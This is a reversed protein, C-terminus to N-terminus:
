RVAEGPVPAGGTVDQRAVEHKGPASAKGHEILSKLRVLDADMSSKADAGFLRAAFHGLAGGPPNYCFRLDVRTRDGQPLFRLIGANAIVSGPVSKWAILRNPEFRTIVADWSVRAGGLGCAVWHSRGRGLDRVEEIHAMFRPFNQYSAWFPFVRDIPGDITLSKQVDVARRGQSLGLLRGFDVNVLSRLTLLGGLCGILWAAPDPSGRRASLRAAGAMLGTGAAGVVLRTGPAWNAQLLDPKDGSRPVGGQLAPHSGAEKHVELQNDVGKVGRTSGVCCLLEDVEHALIPGRLAVRGDRAAVEIAHPHSVIRGLKSRVREALRVDDVAEGSILTALEATLGYARHYVDRALCSLADDTDSALSVLEDRVEARRRRGQVPDLFYMLGAGLGAGLIAMKRNM